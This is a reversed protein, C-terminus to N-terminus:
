RVGIKLEIQQGDRIVTLSKADLRNGFTTAPGVQTNDVAKLIDGEKVGSKQAVGGKTVSTVKLSQGEFQVDMGLYGTLDKITIPPSPNMGGPSVRRNANLDFGRPLIPQTNGLSSDRSGGPPLKDVNSRTKDVNAPPTMATNSGPNGAALDKGNAPPQVVSSNPQAPSLNISPAKEAVQPVPSVAGPYFERIVFVSGVIALVALSVVYVPLPWGTRGNIQRRDADAIRAKVRFDFDNPADVRELDRLLKGLTQDEPTENINDFDKETM